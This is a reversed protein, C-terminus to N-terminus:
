RSAGEGPGSSGAADAAGSAENFQEPIYEQDDMYPTTAQNLKEEPSPNGDSEIFIDLNKQIFDGNDAQILGNDMWQTITEVDVSAYQAAEEITHFVQGTGSENMADLAQMQADTIPTLWHELEVAQTTGDIGEYEARCIARLWDQGRIPTYFAEVTTEWEIAPYKESTGYETMEAVKQETLLAELNERAVELARLRMSVNYASDMSQNMVVLVGSCMVALIGLATIAELLTFGAHRARAFPIRNQQNLPYM